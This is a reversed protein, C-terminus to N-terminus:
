LVALSHARARSFRPRRPAVPARHCPTSGSRPKAYRFAAVNSQQGVDFAVIRRTVDKDDGIIEATVVAQLRAGPQFPMGADMLDEDGSSCAPQVQLLAPPAEEATIREGPLAKGIGFLNLLGSADGGRLEVQTSLGPDPSTRRLGRTTM